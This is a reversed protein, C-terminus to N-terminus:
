FKMALTLGATPQVRNAMRIYDVSPHLEFSYNMKRLDQEYM